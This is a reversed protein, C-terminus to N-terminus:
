FQPEDWQWLQPKGYRELGKATGQCRIGRVTNGPAGGIRDGVLRDDAEPATVQRIEM